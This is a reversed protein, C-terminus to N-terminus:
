VAGWMRVYPRVSTMLDADLRELLRLEGGTEPSGLIGFPAHRRAFLRSAQIMTALKIADPVATWGFLGTVRIPSGGSVGHPLLLKTWPRGNAVANVPAPLVGTLPEGTVEAGDGFAVALGDATMIDDIDVTWRRQPGYPSSSDFVAGYWRSEVEDAKGFQRNTARDVSRSATEIALNLETESGSSGDAIFSRLEAASAYPPAWPM